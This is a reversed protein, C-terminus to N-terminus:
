GSSRDQEDSRIALAWGGRKVSASGFSSNAARRAFTM